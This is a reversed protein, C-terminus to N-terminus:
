TCLVYGKVLNLKVGSGPGPNEEVGSGIEKGIEKERAPPPSRPTIQPVKLPSLASGSSLIVSGLVSSNKRGGFKKEGNKENKENNDREIEKERERDANRKKDKEKEKEKEKEIDFLPVFFEIDNFWDSNNHMTFKKTRSSNTENEDESPFTHFSAPFGIPSDIETHISKRRKKVSKEGNGSGKRQSKEGGNVGSKQSQNQDQNQTEDGGEGKEGKDNDKEPFEISNKRMKEKINGPLTLTLAMAEESVAGKVGTSVNTGFPLPLSPM